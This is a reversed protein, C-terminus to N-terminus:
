SSIKTEYEKLIEDIVSALVEHSVLEYEGYRGCSEWRKIHLESDYLRETIFDSLAQTEPKM